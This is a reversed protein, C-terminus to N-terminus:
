LRSPQMKRLMTLIFSLRLDHLAFLIKERMSKQKIIRKAEKVDENKHNIILDVLHLRYHNEICKSKYEPDLNYHDILRLKTQLLNQMRRYMKDFNASHSASESIIRYVASTFDLYKVKTTCLFHTFYVFTADHSGLLDKAMLEKRFLWTPPCVYSQNIIFEEPSEFHTIFGRIKSKFTDHTYRGSSENKVDFDTFCMGYEPNAELFDVQKQLKDPDKWYDDGECHAIYKGQARPLNWVNSGAPKGAQFQNEKEYIPKIVDPYKQEYEKIIETTGDTSCDDHILVEFPFNTKQSIFGELADKIYPAHNYTICSISVLPKDM